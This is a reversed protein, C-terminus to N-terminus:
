WSDVPSIRLFWTIQRSSRCTLFMTFFWLRAFDMWSADQDINTEMNSYLAFHYPRMMELTLL